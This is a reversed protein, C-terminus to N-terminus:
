HNFLINKIYIAAWISFIFQILYYEKIIFQYM